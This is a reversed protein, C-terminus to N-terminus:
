SFVCISRCHATLLGGTLSLSSKLQHSRQRTRTQDTQFSDPLSSISTWNCPPHTSLELIQKLFSKQASPGQAVSKIELCKIFVVNCTSPSHTLSLIEESAPQKELPKPSSDGWSGWNLADGTNLCSHVHRKQM